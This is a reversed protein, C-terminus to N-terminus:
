PISKLFAILDKRDRPDAVSFGMAQGPITKEPDALWRDLTTATWVTRSSKLAPSYDYSAVAGAKRGVVGRHAPGVRDADISHCAICRSEYLARGRLADGAASAHLALVALALGAICRELV